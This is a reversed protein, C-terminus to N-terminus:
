RYTMSRICCIGTYFEQSKSSDMEAVPGDNIREKVIYVTQEWYSRSKGLGGRESLNKM